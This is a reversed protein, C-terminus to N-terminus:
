SLILRNVSLLFITRQGPHLELECRLTFTDMSNEFGTKPKTREFAKNVRNIHVTGTYLVCWHLVVCPTIYMYLPSEGCRSSARSRACGYHDLVYSVCAWLHTLVALPNVFFTGYNLRLPCLFFCFYGVGQAEFKLASFVGHLKANNRSWVVCLLSYRRGSGVRSLLQRQTMQRVNTQTSLAKTAVVVAALLLLRLGVDRSHGDDDYRKTARQVKDRGWGGGLKDSCSRSYNTRGILLLIWWRCRSSDEGIGPSESLKRGDFTRDLDWQFTGSQDWFGAPRELVVTTCYRSSVDRLASFYHILQIYIKKDWTYRWAEQGAVEWDFNLDPTVHYAREGGRVVTRAKRTKDRSSM